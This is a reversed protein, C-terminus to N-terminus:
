IAKALPKESNNAMIANSEALIAYRNSQPNSNSIIIIAQLEKISKLKDYKKSM